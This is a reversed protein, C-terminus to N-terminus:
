GLGALRGSTRRQTLRRRWLPYAYWTGIPVLAAMVGLTLAAAESELARGSAVYTDLAIGLALPLPASVVFWSGLRLFDPDDQGGFSIRHLSAVAMLLVVALGICCLAAAHIVKAEAPLSQFARTLTVTLQFGILAQVGPLIIRAETLLQDVQTELPTPKAPADPSMSKRKRRIIWELAYLLLLALGFFGGALAFSTTVSFIRRMAVFTDLALAVSIPLLAAGAFITALTLVRPSDQGREVIRHEMSPAILCAIAIMILTLGESICAREALPLESFQEQFIGTFQFGFLVQAGLILLRTEDLAIKLQRELKM